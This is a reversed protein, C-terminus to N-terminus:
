TQIPPLGIWNRLTANTSFTDPTRIHLAERGSRILLFWLKLQDPPRLLITELTTTFYRTYVPHLSSRGVAYEASISARLADLGSLSALVQSEHLVSNRHTWLHYVINWCKVILRTAWTSGKKRSQITSYYSNQMSVIPKTIFGMLFAYWGLERQANFAVRILNTPWVIHPENGYPDSLWSRISDILIPIIHPYTDEQTLWLELEVLLNTTLTQVDPHPCTLIHVLHEEPADCRPCNALVRQKRRRMVIGTATDESIWKSIFRQFPFSASKRAKAISPWAVTDHLLNADIEWKDAIYEVMDNHHIGYALSKQFNSVVLSGKVMVKSM